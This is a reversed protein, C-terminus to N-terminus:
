KIRRILKIITDSARDLEQMTHGNQCALQHAKLMRAKDYGKRSKQFYYFNDIFDLFAQRDKM